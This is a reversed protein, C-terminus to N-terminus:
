ALVATADCSDRGCLFNLRHRPAFPRRCCLCQRSPPPTRMRRKAGVATWGRDRLLAAELRCDAESRRLRYAAERYSVASRLLDLLEQREADTWIRDANASM